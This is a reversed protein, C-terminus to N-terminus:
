EAYPLDREGALVRQFDSKKLRLARLDAERPMRRSEVARAIRIAPGILSFFSGRESRGFLGFHSLDLTHSM